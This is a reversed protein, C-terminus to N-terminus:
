PCFPFPQGWFWDPAGGPVCGSVQNGGIALWRLYPLKGLEPPMEGSLQNSGLDLGTVQGNEDTTVRLWKDLAGDGLWGDNIKWDAGDTADYLATLTTREPDPSGTPATETPIATPTAPASATPASAEPTSTAVERTPSVSTSDSGANCATLFLLLILALAGLTRLHRAISRPNRMKM